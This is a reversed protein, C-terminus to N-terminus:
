VRQLSATNAESESTDWARAWDTKLSALEQFLARIRASQRLDRHYLLWCFGIHESTTGPLLALQPNDACMICPLNAVGM